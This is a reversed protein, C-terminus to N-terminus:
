STKGNLTDIIKLLSNIRLQNFLNDSKRQEKEIRLLEERAEDLPLEKEYIRLRVYDENNTIINM